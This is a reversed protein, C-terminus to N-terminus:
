YSHDEYKNELSVHYGFVHGCAPFVFPISFGDNRILNCMAPVCFSALNYHKRGPSYGNVNNDTICNVSEM